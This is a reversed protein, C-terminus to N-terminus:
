TCRLVPHEQGSRITARDEPHSSDAWRRRSEIKPVSASNFLAKFDSLSWERLGQRMDGDAGGQLAQRARAAAHQEVRAAELVRRRHLAVVQLLAQHRGALAALDGDDAVGAGAQALNLAAEGVGAELARWERERESCVKFTQWSPELCRIMAIRQAVHQHRRV